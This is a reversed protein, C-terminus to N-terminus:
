NRARCHRARLLTCPPLVHSPVPFWKPLFGPPPFVLLPDARPAPSYGAILPVSKWVPCFGQPRFRHLQRSTPLQKVSLMPLVVLPFPQFRRAKPLRTSPLFGQLSIRCTATARFLAVLDRAAFLTSTTHFPLSAFPQSSPISVTMVSSSISTAFLVLPLGMSPKKPTTGFLPLSSRVRFLVTLWYSSPGKVSISLSM